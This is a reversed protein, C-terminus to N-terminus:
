ELESLEVLELNLHPEFLLGPPCPWVSSSSQNGGHPGFVAMGSAQLHPRAGQGVSRPHRVLHPLVETMGLPTM